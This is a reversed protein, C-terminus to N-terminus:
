KLEILAGLRGTKEGMRRYSYFEDGGCKTCMKSISINEKKVGIERLSAYNAQWLDVFFKGNEKETVFEESFERAVEEGVEFCCKGIGPGIAAVINEPAIGYNEAMLRVAKQPIKMVTGRWGAHVAGIAKGDKDTLLVPICDAAFVVLPTNKENTILGDTDNIDSERILGKGRDAKTVVRINDTHTQKALVMNSFTMDLDAAVAEYNKIVDEINDGVRFGLNLGEIKGKSFGGRATTFGHRLCSIESLKEDTIYCRGNINRKFM